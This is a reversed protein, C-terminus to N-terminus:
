LVVGRVSGPTDRTPRDGNGLFDAVGWCVVKGSTRRACAYLNGGAVEVADTLGPITWV